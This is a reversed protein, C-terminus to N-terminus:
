TVSFMSDSSTMSARVSSTISRISDMRVQVSRLLRSHEFDLRGGPECNVTSLETGSAPLAIPMVTVAINSGNNLHDRAAHSSHVTFQSSARRVYGHTM